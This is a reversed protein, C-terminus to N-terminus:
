KEHFWKCLIKLDILFWWELGKGNWTMWKAWQPSREMSSVMLENTKKLEAIEEALKKNIEKTKEAEEASVKGSDSASVNSSFEAFLKDFDNDVKPISVDPFLNKLGKCISIEIARIKDTASKEAQGLADVVKWNKERLEQLFSSSYFM